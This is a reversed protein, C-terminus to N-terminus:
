VPLKLRQGARVRSSELGNARKLRSVTTGHRKAIESLTDGSRVTVSGNTAVSGRGSRRPSPPKLNAVRVSDAALSEPSPIAADGVRIKLRTGRRVSSTKLHNWRKIDTVTVGYKTAIEALTEGRRVTHTSRGEADSEANLSAPTRINREPVYATSARPDDEAIDAPAPSRLSAPVNLVMGRKLPSTRSIGNAKALQTAGVHYQGAIGKLTEGKRVRHKVSLEAAPLSAGERLKELIVDGKGRPVRLMTIGDRGPAAHKLVAPNLYKMDEYTCEAFRAIARLDVTGKLAIEDFTMPVHRVNSPLGPPVTDSLLLLDLTHQNALSHLYLPFWPGFSGSYPLILLARGRGTSRPFIM